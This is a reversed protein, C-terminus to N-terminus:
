AREQEHSQLHSKLREEIKNNIIGALVPNQKVLAQVVEGPLFIIEADTQARVTATAARPTLLSIEGFFSNAGLEAVKSKERGRRLLVAVTGNEILCLRSSIEGQLLITTGARYHQKELGELLGTLEDDSCSGFLDTRQITQRAWQIDQESLEM